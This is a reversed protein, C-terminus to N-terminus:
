PTGWRGILACAALAMNRWSTEVVVRTGDDLVALVQFAPEGSQMGGPLNGVREIIGHAVPHDAVDDYWAGDAIAIDVKLETAM